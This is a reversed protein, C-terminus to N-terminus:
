CTLMTISSEFSRNKSYNTYKKARLNQLVTAQKVTLFKKMKGKM